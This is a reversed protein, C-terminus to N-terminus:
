LHGLPSELRHDHGGPSKIPTEKKEEASNALREFSEFDSESTGKKAADPGHEKLSAVEAELKKQNCLLADISLLRKYVKFIELEEIFQTRLTKYLAENKLCSTRGFCCM